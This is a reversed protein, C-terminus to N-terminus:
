EGPWLIKYTCIIGLILVLWNIFSIINQLILPLNTSSENVGISFLYNFATKLKNVTGPTESLESTSFNLDDSNVDYTNNSNYDANTLFEDQLLLPMGISLLFGYMMIGLLIVIYKM